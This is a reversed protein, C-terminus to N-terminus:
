WFDASHTKFNDDWKSWNTEKIHILAQDDQVDLLLNKEHRILFVILPNRNVYFVVGHTIVPYVVCDCRYVCCVTWKFFYAENMTDSWWTALLSGGLTMSFHFWEFHSDQLTDHNTTPICTWLKLRFLLHHSHTPATLSLPCSPRSQSHSRLM